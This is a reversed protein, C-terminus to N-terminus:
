GFYDAVQKANRAADITGIEEIAQIASVWCVPYEGSTNINVDDVHCVIYCEKVPLNTVTKRFKLETKRGNKSFTVYTNFKRGDTTTRENVRVKLKVTKNEM